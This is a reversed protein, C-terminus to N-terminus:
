KVGAAANRCADFDDGEENEWDVWEGGQFISLGGTNAYDGKVNEAFQFDDYAALADLMVAAQRLDDVPWEFAKMPIQPIWWVRLDGEQPAPFKRLFRRYIDGAISM